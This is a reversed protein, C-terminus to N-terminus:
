FIRPFAPDVPQMGALSRRVYGRLIWRDRGDFRAPFSTRGHVCRRNNLVLLDGSELYLRQTIGPAQAAKRLELLATKAKDEIGRTGCALDLAALRNTIEGRLIPVPGVWPRDDPADRTFSFPARLEFRAETLVGLDSPHLEACLDDVNAVLTAAAHDPDGRLCWLLIFDPSEADLPREPNRRSFVLETHLDLTSSSNENSPSNSETEVPFVNQVLAGNKEAIYGLPEGLVTAIGLLAVESLFRVQGNSTADAGIPTSPLDNESVLGRILASAPGEETTMSALLSLVKKPLSSRAADEIEGLLAETGVPRGIFHALVSEVRDAEQPSTFHQEM